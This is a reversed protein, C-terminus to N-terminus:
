SLKFSEDYSKYIFQIILKKIENINLIKNIQQLIQHSPFIKFFNLKQSSSFLAQVHLKQREPLVVLDRTPYLCPQKLAGCAWVRPVAPRWAVELPRPQRTTTRAPFPLSIVPAGHM